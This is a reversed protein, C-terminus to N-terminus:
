GDSCAGRPRRHPRARPQRESAHASSGNASRRPTSRHGPVHELKVTDGVPIGSAAGAPARRRRASPRRPRAPRARPGTPIPCTSAAAPRWRARAASGRRRARRAPHRDGPHVRARLGRSCSALATPVSNWSGSVCTTIFVTRASSANGAPSGRRSERGATARPTSSAASASPIPAGARDRGGGLQGATLQLAHREAGREGAPRRQDHEVLRGRLEVRDRAVLQDRQQPPEVLVRVRRDHEGLM